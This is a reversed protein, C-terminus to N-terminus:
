KAVCRRLCCTSKTVSARKCIRSVYYSLQGCLTATMADFGTAFVISDFEFERGNAVLGTPTIREISL